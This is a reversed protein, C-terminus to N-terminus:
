RLERDFADLDREFEWQLRAKESDQLLTACAAPPPAQVSAGACAPVKRWAVPDAWLSAGAVFAYELTNRELGILTPFDLGFETVARQLEHTRDIREVGEDDTSLVTPVGAARYIPFPHDAGRVGLIQDNSTLNIEVAVRQAAMERLLGAPDSEYMVDVGHGVRRAHGLEVAQRVHFRLDEPPVLGLTLEGAHLTVNANPMAGHLYELMHMQLTYDALSVPDDEPAVFNLGVVRPEAQSVLAGFLMQAFVLGPPNTRSVQALWRVAVACGAEAQPTGCHMKARMASEGADLDARAKSVLEGLGADMLRQHFEAMDGTWRLKRALDTVARGQFTVMLEIYRMRQRGARDVVDAAMDGMSAAGGFKAFAAFFHDHGSMGSSPVFGRMSWTDILMRRLDDDSLADAMKRTTRGCVAVASKAPDVCVGRAAGAEILAEAYAAGSLHTHLDGGKPMRYLFARLEPPSQRVAEFRGAAGDGTVGVRPSCAALLLALTVLVPRMAHRVSTEGSSSRQYRLVRM